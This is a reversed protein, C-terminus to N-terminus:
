KRRKAIMAMAEGHLVQDRIKEEGKAIEKKPKEWTIVYWATIFILVLWLIPYIGM